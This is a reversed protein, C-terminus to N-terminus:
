RRKAALLLGGLSMLILTAPEPVVDVDLYPRYNANTHEKSYSYFSETVAGESGKLALSLIGDGGVQAQVAATVDVAVSRANGAPTFSTALSGLAPQNAFTITMEGWSDDAVDYVGVSFNATVTNCWLYLTASSVPGTIGSLDFKLFARNDRTVSNTTGVRLEINSGFNTNDYVTGSRSHIVWADAAPAVVLGAQAVTAISLVGLMVFVNKM